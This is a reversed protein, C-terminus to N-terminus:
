SYARGRDPPAVTGNSPRIRRRGARGSALKRVSQEMNPTTGSRDQGTDPGGTVPVTPATRPSLRTTVNSAWRRRGPRWTVLSFLRGAPRSGECRGIVAGDQRALKPAAQDQAAPDQRRRHRAGEVRVARRLPGHPVSQRAAAAADGRWGRQRPAQDAASLHDARLAPRPRGGGWCGARGGWRRHRGPAVCPGALSGGCPSTAPPSVPAREAVVAPESEERDSASCSRYVAM